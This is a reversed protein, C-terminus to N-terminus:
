SQSVSMDDVFVSSSSGGFVRAYIDIVGIETPTFTVTLQEWQGTTVSTAIVDNPVGDLQGGLVLLQGTVNADTRKFYCKATVIKNPVVALSALKYDLPYLASRPSSPMLNWAFGSLTHRNAGTENVVRGGDTVMLHSGKVADHNHSRVRADFFSPIGAFELSESIICDHMNVECGASHGVDFM